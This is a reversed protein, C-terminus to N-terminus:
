ASDVARQLDSVRRTAQEAEERAADRAARADDQRHQAEALDAEARELDARLREAVRRADDAAKEAADAASEAETRADAAARAASWAEALDKELAARRQAREQDEKGSTGRSGHGSAKPARGRPASSTADGGGFGTHRLAETLHGARLAEGAREDALAAGLTEELQRAADESVAQGADAAMRRAQRVLAQVLQGRQRSLERLEPGSLTETAERLAAGLELLPQVEDPHERVLTNALWAPVTPKRMRAVATALDKDGDAKLRKVEADRAATFDQPRLGYLEDAIRGVAEDNAGDSAGDDVEGAMDEGEDADPEM